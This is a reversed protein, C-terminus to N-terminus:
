PKSSARAALLAGVGMVDQRAIFVHYDIDTGTYNVDHLKSGYRLDKRHWWAILYARSRQKRPDKTHIVLLIETRGRRAVVRDRPNSVLGLAKHWDQPRPRGGTKRDADDNVLGRVRLDDPHKRAL